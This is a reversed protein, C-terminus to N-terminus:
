RHNRHPDGDCDEQVSRKFLNDAPCSNKKSRFLPFLNSKEGHTSFFLYCYLSETKGRGIPIIHAPPLNPLPFSNSILISHPSLETIAKAEVAAMPAPSLFCYLWEFEGWPYIFANGRRVTLNSIGFSRIKSILYPLLAAEIGTFHGNPFRKALPILLTGIGCGIDLFRFSRDSPLLAAVAAIAAQNSLYLPVQTRATNGFVLFLFLACLLYILPPLNLHSALYLAPTFSLHIVIWWWSRHLFYGIAASVIAQLIVAALLQRPLLALYVSVGVVSWGGIQTLLMAFLPSRKM